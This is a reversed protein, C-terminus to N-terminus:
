SSSTSPEGANLAIADTEDIWSDYKSPWGRWRVLLEKRGGRKRTRLVTEVLYRYQEYAKKLQNEYFTGSVVEGSYDKLRYQPIGDSIFRENVVFLERSWREDYERQFARRLFSVRVLDGIKYKFGRVRSISPKRAATSKPQSAYQLKWLDVSDEAKVSRPVRYISRHYTSNYSATIDSLIDIWRRTQKHTMYRTM